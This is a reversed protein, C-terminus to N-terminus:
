PSTRGQTYQQFVLRGAAQRNFEATSSSLLFNVTVVIRLVGAPMPTDLLNMMRPLLSKGAREPGAIGLDRRPLPRFEGAATGACYGPNEIGTFEIGKRGLQQLALPKISCISSELALM